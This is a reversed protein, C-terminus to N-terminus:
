LTMDTAARICASHQTWPPQWAQQMCPKSSVAPPVGTQSVCRWGDETESGHCRKSTDLIARVFCAASMTQM